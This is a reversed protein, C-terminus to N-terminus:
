DNGKSYSYLMMEVSNPVSDALTFFDTPGDHDRRVAIGARAASVLYRHATKHSCKLERMVDPYSLWKKSAFLVLLRFSAELIRTRNNSRIQM